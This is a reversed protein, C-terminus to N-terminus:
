IKSHQISSQIWEVMDEASYQQLTLSYTDLVYRIAELEARVFEEEAPDGDGCLAHETRIVASLVVELVDLERHMRLFPVILPCGFSRATRLSMSKFAEVLRFLSASDGDQLRSSLGLSAALPKPLIRTTLMCNSEISKLSQHNTLMAIFTEEDYERYYNGDVNLSELTQIGELDRFFALLEKQFENGFLSLSKVSPTDGLFQVMRRLLDQGSLWNKGLRLNELHPYGTLGDLLYAAGASYIRNSEISLFKLTKHQSERLGTALAQVGTVGLWTHHLLLYELCPSSAAFSQLSEFSLGGEFLPGQIALKKLTGLCSASLANFLYPGLVIDAEFVPSVKLTWTFEQLHSLSQLHQLTSVCATKSPLSFSYSGIGSEGDTSVHGLKLSTLKDPINIVTLLDAIIHDEYGARLLEQFAMGRDGHLFLSELQSNAEVFRRLGDVMKVEEEHSFNNSMCKVQLHRLSSLTTSHFEPCAIWASASLSTLSTNCEAALSISQAFTSDVDRWSTILTLSQLRNIELLSALNQELSHSLTLSSGCSPGEEIALTRLNELHGLFDWCSVVVSVDAIRLSTLVTCDQLMNVTTTFEQRLKMSELETSNQMVDLIDLNLDVDQLLRSNSSLIRGVVELLTSIEGRPPFAEQDFVGWSRIVGTVGFRSRFPGLLREPPNWDKHKSILKWLTQWRFTEQSWVCSYDQVQQVDVSVDGM